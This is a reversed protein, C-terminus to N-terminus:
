TRILYEVRCAIMSAVDGTIWLSEGTLLVIRPVKSTSGYPIPIKNFIKAYNSGDYTELTAFHQSQGVDDINSLAGSFVVVTQGSAVPAIM